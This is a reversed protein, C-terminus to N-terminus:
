NYIFIIIIKSFIKTSPKIIKQTFNLSLLLSLNHPFTDTRNDSSLFTYPPHYNHNNGSGKAKSVSQTNLYTYKICPTHANATPQYINDEWAWSWVVVHM